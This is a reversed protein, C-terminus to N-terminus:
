QRCKVVRAAAVAVDVDLASFNALIHKHHTQKDEKRVSLSPQAMM